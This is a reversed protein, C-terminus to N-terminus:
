DRLGEVAALGAFGRGPLRKATRANVGGLAIVPLAAALALIGARLPGLPRKASPSRSPFVPALIAADLQTAAARALGRRSHAAGTQLGVGARAKHVLREPWHVGDAGVRRALAPDAAILLTLGRRRCVAALAKAVSLRDAAGFHRYVVAAGRPLREAIKAPAPTREPDTFFFLAPIAPRGAERNLRRALADLVMVNRM